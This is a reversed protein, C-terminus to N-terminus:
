KLSDNYAKIAERMTPIVGLQQMNNYFDATGRWEIIKSDDIRVIRTNKCDIKKGTPPIGMYLGGTHTGTVNNIFAVKDGEAIMDLITWKADPFADQLMIDFQKNQELTFGEGFCGEAYIENAADINHQNYLEHLHRILEKNNEEIGM